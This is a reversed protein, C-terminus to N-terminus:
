LHAELHRRSCCVTFVRAPWAIGSATAPLRTTARTWPRRSCCGTAGGSGCWGGACTPPPRACCTSWRSTSAASSRRRCGNGCSRAWTGLDCGNAAATTCTTGAHRATPALAACRIALRTTIDVRDILGGPVPVLYVLASHLDPAVDSVRVVVHADPAGVGVAAFQEGLALLAAAEVIRGIPLEVRVFRMRVPPNTFSQAPDALWLAIPTPDKPPLAAGPPPFLTPALPRPEVGACGALAGGLALATLASRRRVTM